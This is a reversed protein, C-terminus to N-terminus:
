KGDVGVTCDTCHVDAPPRGELPKREIVATLWDIYRVGDLEEDFVRDRTLITHDDGPQMFTLLDVGGAEVLDETADMAQDLRSADFGAMGAYSVQTRDFAFDHRTFVIDPHRKGSAVFLEAFNWREPTIGETEPWDPVNNFAGWKGGVYSVIGPENPYGGSGDAVVTVRADPVEDALLGAVLPSPISGASVGAVVLEEVQRFRDVTEAIAARVNRAGKHQMVVGNGYDTTADGLHVDGTCYPVYVITHDRLPNREDNVDLLGSGTGATAMAETEPRLSPTYRESSPDCSTADFCAGGGELFFLLKTPDAGRIYFAFPSGDSCMCDDPADVRVWTVVESPDDADGGVETETDAAEITTSVGDEDATATGDDGGCGVVATLLGALAVALLTRHIPRTRGHTTM